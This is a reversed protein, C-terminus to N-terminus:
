MPKLWLSTDTVGSTTWVYRWDSVATLFKKWADSAPGDSERRSNPSRSQCPLYWNCNDIILIGGPKLLSLSALACGDRAIGDILCFDLSEDEVKDAISVYESEDTCLYYDVNGFGKEHLDAKVRQYWAEDHEVSTLRGVRAALWLTSRGSGWELGCDDPRLWSNLITIMLRTLWPADPHRREFAM